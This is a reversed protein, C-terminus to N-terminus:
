RYRIERARAVQERGIKIFRITLWVACFIAAPVGVVLGGGISTTAIGVPVCTAAFAILTSIMVAWTCVMTMLFSAVQESFDMPKGEARRRESVLPTRIAAPVLSLIVLVGLAINERLAGLCVAIIAILFLATGIRFTRPPAIQSAPPEYPNESPRPPFVIRVKPVLDPGGFRHECGACVEAGAPNWTGCGICAFRIEDPESM